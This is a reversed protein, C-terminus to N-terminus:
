AEVKPSRIMRGLETVTPLQNILSVALENLTCDLAEMGGSNDLTIVRAGASKYQEISQEIAEAFRAVVSRTSSKTSKACAPWSRPAGRQWLRELATDVSTLIHIVFMDQCSQKSLWPKSLAGYRQGAWVRVAAGLHVLGESELYINTRGASVEFSQRYYDALLMNEALWHCPKRKWKRLAGLLVGSMMRNRFDYCHVRRAYAIGTIARVLRVHRLEYNVNFKGYIRNQTYSHTLETQDVVQIGLEVLKPQLFSVCYSKGSGPLGVLEVIM